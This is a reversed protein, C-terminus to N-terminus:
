VSMMIKKMYRLYYKLM